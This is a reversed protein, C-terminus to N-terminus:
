FWRGGGRRLRGIQDGYAVAFGGGEDVGGDRCHAAHVAEYFAALGNGDFRVDAPGDGGFQAGVGVGDDDLADYLV